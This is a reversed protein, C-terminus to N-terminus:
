KKSSKVLVPEYNDEDNAVLQQQQQQRKLKASAGSSSRRRLMWGGGGGGHRVDRGGGGGAKTVSTTIAVIAGSLKSQHKAELQSIIRTVSGGGGGSGGGDGGDGAMADPLEANSCPGDATTTAAPEAELKQQQQQQQQQLQQLQQRQQLEINLLETHNPQRKAALPKASTTTTTAATASGSPQSRGSSRLRKRMWSVAGHVVSLRRRGSGPSPKTQATGNNTPGAVLLQAAVLQKIDHFNNAGQLPYSHVTSTLNDVRIECVNLLNILRKASEILSRFPRLSKSPFTQTSNM